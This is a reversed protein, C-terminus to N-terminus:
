NFLKISNAKDTSDYMNKFSREIQNLAIIKMNNNKNHNEGLILKTKIKKHSVPRKKIKDKNLRRYTDLFNNAQLSSSYDFDNIESRSLSKNFFNNSKKVNKYGFVNQGQDQNVNEGTLINEASQSGNKLKISKYNSKPQLKSNIEINENALLLKSYSYKGRLFDKIILKQIDSTENKNEDKKELNKELIENKEIKKINKYRSEVKKINKNFLKVKEFNLSKNKINIRLNVSKKLNDKPSKNMFSNKSLLPVSTDNSIKEMFSDSNKNITKNKNEEIKIKRINSLQEANIKGEIYNKIFSQTPVKPKFQSSTVRKQVIFDKMNELKKCLNKCFEIEEMVEKHYNECKEDIDLNKTSQENKDEKSRQIIDYIDKKILNLENNLNDFAKKIGNITEINESKIQVIKQDYTESFKKIQAEVDTAVTNAYNSSFSSVNNLQIKLAKLNDEVRFKFSKFDTVLNKENNNNSTKNINNLVFDIFQHLNLFRCKPGIVGKYDINENYIKEVKYITDQIYKYHERFKNDHNSLLDEFRKKFNSLSKIEKAVNKDSSMSNTIEILKSFLTEIRIKNQSIQNTIEENKTDMKASLTILASKTEKLIEEKFFILENKM